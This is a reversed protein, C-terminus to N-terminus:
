LGRGRTGTLLWILGFWARRNLEKLIAKLTISGDVPPMKGETEECFCVNGKWEGTGVM